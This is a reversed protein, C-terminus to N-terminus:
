GTNDDDQPNVVKPYGVHYACHPHSPGICPFLGDTCQDCHEVNVIRKSLGDSAQQATKQIYVSEMVGSQKSHGSVARIQADTAGGTAMETLVTRRLDRLQLGELRPDNLKAKLSAWINHYNRKFAPSFAKVVKRLHMATAHRLPIQVTKGTKSQVITLLGTDDIANTLDLDLIDRPRQGTRYLLHFFDHFDTGICAGLVLLVLEGNWTKTRPKDGKIGMKSWPNMKIYGARYGFNWIRKLVRTMHVAKPRGFQIVWTPFWSDVMSASIANVDTNRLLRSYVADIMQQYSVQSNAALETFHHSVKYADVLEYLKM